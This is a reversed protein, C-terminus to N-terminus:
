EMGGGDRDDRDDRDARDDREGRGVRATGAAVLPPAGAGGGGTEGAGAVDGSRIRAVARWPLFFLTWSVAAVAAAGVALVLPLAWVLWLVNWRYSSVWKWLTRVRAVVRGPVSGPDLDLRRVAVVAGVGVLLAPLTAPSRLAAGLWPLLTDPIFTAVAVLAAGLADPLLGVAWAVATGLAGVAAGGAAWWRPITIGAVVSWLVAVAVVAVAAVTIPARVRVGRLFRAAGADLVREVRAGGVPPKPPEPPPVAISGSPPAGTAALEPAPPRFEPFYRRVFRDATDYGHNVLAAIEVEGFGDLDTRLRSLRRGDVPLELPAPGSAPVPPPAGMHFYALTRLERDAHLQGLARRVADPTDDPLGRGLELADRSVRRRERLALRQLGGTVRMLIGPIRLSLGVHDRPAAALERFVGGTDSAIISTCGEDLLAMVGTNDYVGGDTLGLRSVHRDDYLGLIVFPPFVPPFCASAGVADGVTLREWDAAFGPSVREGTRLLYLEILFDLFLEYAPEGPVLALRVRRALEPDIDGLAAAVGAWHEDRSRGGTVPPSRLVGDRLYWAHVKAKRLAGLAADPLDGPFGPVTEELVRWGAPLPRGHGSEGRRRWWLALAAVAEPDRATALRAAGLEPLADALEDVPAETLVRRRELLPELEDRRFHGLYWDGLEVASFLFRGGSNLTTANVVLRTVVSGGRALQEANYADLGHSLDAGRPRIRLDSLSIAGPRAGRRAGDGLDAIAPAIMHREYLRAMASGLSRETLLVKLSTWPNLLLRTRLNRDVGRCLLHDVEEVVSRYQAATLRGHEELWKKLRLVYLAGTISGGSVTSLVEVRRLLDLEALRYLVGLHFLAARFGGGALSLGLRDPNRSTDRPTDRPTDRGATM